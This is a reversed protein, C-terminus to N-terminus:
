KILKLQKLLVLFILVQNWERYIEMVQQFASNVLHKAQYNYYSSFKGTEKFDLLAILPRSIRREKSGEPQLYKSIGYKDNVFTDLTEDTIFTVNMSKAYNIAQRWIRTYTNSTIPSYRQSLLYSEAAKVLTEFDHIPINVM